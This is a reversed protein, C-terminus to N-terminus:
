QIIQLYWQEKGLKKKKKKKAFDAKTVLFCKWVSVQAVKHM